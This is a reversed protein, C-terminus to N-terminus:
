EFVRAIDISDKLCLGRSFAFSATSSREGNISVSKRTVRVNGEQYYLGEQDLDKFSLQDPTLISALNNPDTGPAYGLIGNEEVRSPDFSSHTFANFNNKGAQDPDFNVCYDGRLICNCFVKYVSCDPRSQSPGENRKALFRLICYFVHKKPLFHNLYQQIYGLRSNLEEEVFIMSCSERSIDLLFSESSLTYLMSPSEHYFELGLAEAMAKFAELDPMKGYELVKLLFEERMLSDFIACNKHWCLFASHPLRDCKQIWRCPPLFLM